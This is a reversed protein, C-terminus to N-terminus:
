GGGVCVVVASAVDGGTYRRGDERGGVVAVGVKSAHRVLFDLHLIFFYFAMTRSGVDQSTLPEVLSVVSVKCFSPETESVRQRWGVRGIHLLLLGPIHVRHVIGLGLGGDVLGGEVARDLLGQGAVSSVERTRERAYGLVTVIGLRSEEVKSRSTAEHTMGHHWMEVDGDM